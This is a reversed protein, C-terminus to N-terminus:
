VGHEFSYGLEELTKPPAQEKLHILLQGGDSQISLVTDKRYDAPIAGIADYTHQKGNIELTLPAHIAGLLDNLRM